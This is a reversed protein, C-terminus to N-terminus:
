MNSLQQVSFKLKFGGAVNFPFEVPFIFEAHIDPNLSTLPTTFNKGTLERKKALFDVSFSAGQHRFPIEFQDRSRKDGFFFRVQVHVGIALLPWTVLKLDWKTMLARQEQDIKEGPFSFQGSLSEGCWECAWVRVNIDFENEGHLEGKIALSHSFSVMAFSAAHYLHVDAPSCPKVNTM